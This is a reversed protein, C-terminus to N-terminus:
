VALQAAPPAVGTRMQEALRAARAGVDKAWDTPVGPANWLMALAAQEFEGRRAHRLMNKFGMLGAAGLNFAMNILVAARPVALSSWWPILRDLEACVHEVDAVLQAEAQAENWRLGPHIGMGCHGYGITWPAGNTKPDPYAVLRLGEDTRLQEIALTKAAASM